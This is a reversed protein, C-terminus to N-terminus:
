QDAEEDDGASRWQSLKTLYREFADQMLHEVDPRTRGMVLMSLRAPEGLFMERAAIIAARMRPEIADAPVLLGRERALDMELKDGQLRALRDKSSEGQVKGVETSVRWRICDALEYESPVGPGGREAVPFGQAQWEVITKPAVGFADAVQEQGVIRM